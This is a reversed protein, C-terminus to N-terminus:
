NKAKATWYARFYTELVETPGRPFKNAFEEANERNFPKGPVQWDVLMEELAEADSKGALEDRLEDLEKRTRYRFVVPLRQPPLGGARSIEVVEDFTPPLDFSFPEVVDIVQTQASM